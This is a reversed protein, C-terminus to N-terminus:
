VFAMVRAYSPARTLRTAEWETRPILAEEAAEDAEQERPNENRAPTDRLDM